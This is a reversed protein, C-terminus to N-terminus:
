KRPSQGDAGTPDDYMRKRMEMDEESRRQEAAIQLDLSKIDRAAFAQVKGNDDSLWPVLAERKQKYAEVLGFEGSVIGTTQLLTSLLELLEDDLPLVRVIEKCLDYPIAEGRYASLIRLVFEAEERTGARLRSSLKSRLADPCGPFSAAILRGGTFEFMLDGSVFTKRVIELAYDVINTFRNQLTYFRHPIARYSSTATKAAANTLREGFFNFVREPFREAVITLLMDAHTEIQEAPILSDLIVAAQDETLDALPSRDKPLYWALDVWGTDKKEAFYQVGPILITAILDPTGDAYRYFVTGLIQSVVAHSDLRIGAQLIKSLVVNDLKAAFRYYHAIQVLYRDQSLWESIKAPVKLALSSEELGSLMVGLFGTLKDDLKEMFGLVVVPQAKSLKKLFEGFSPFTALDNSETQACRQIISFWEDANTEDIEAVFEDIRAKRYEDEQAPDSNEDEWMIPFVSDFGVLTKYITFKANADIGERFRQISESLMGIATLTAANSKPDNRIGISRRHLWLIRNEIRQLSEYADRPASEHYFDVVRASDNLVDILLDDSFNAQSPMGTASFITQETGSREQDSTATRYLDFLIDLADSRLKRLVESPVVAGWHLTVTNYSSSTGEVETGLVEGLAERLVPRLPERQDHALGRIQQVLIMQAAPGAKKWVDLNHEATKEIVQLVHKREEDTQAGPFLQCVADFTIEVSVYRLRIFIETAIEAVREATRGPLNGFPTEIPRVKTARAAKIAAVLQDKIEPYVSAPDDYHPVVYDRFRELLEVRANNDSCEALVKLAGRDLIEKGSMLREFDDLAKQFEYGAPLLHTKMIGHLRAKIAEFLQVGFGELKPAKYLIDHEMESWAHNLTTQFQVECALGAFRAYEALKTRDEKLGVVFNHSIFLDDPDSKGPVPYHIKTREWDVHFNDQIIGSQLFRAVDSNTYFILRCGALDKIDSELTTTTVISRDELKKRLSDVNKARHQVQQLRLTVPYAKLATSLISAVTEALEAYVFQKTGSYTEFDM